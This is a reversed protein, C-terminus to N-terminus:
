FTYFSKKLNFIAYSSRVMVKVKVWKTRVELGRRQIIFLMEGFGVSMGKEKQAYWIRFSLDCYRTLLVHLGPLVPLM